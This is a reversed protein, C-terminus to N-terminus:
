KRSRLRVFSALQVMVCFLIVLSTPEPVTSFTQLSGSGATAGFNAQWVAYDAADIVDMSAGTNDGNARLDTTSGLTDRWLVYDAADVVNNENYDGPITGSGPVYDITLTPASILPDEANELSAFMQLPTSDFPARVRMYFTILGDTDQLVADRRNQLATEGQFEDAYFGFPRTTPGSSTTDLGGIYASEGPDSYYSIEDVTLFRVQNHTPDFGVGDNWTYTDASGTEIGDFVAYVYYTLNLKPTTESARRVQFNISNISAIDQGTMGGPLQYQAYLFTLETAPGGSTGTMAAELDGTPFATDPMLADVTSDSVPLLTLIDAQSASSILCFLLILPLQTKM